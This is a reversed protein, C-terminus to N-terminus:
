LYYSLRQHRCVSPLLFEKVNKKLMSTQGSQWGQSSNALGGRVWLPELWIPFPNIWVPWPVFTAKRKFQWVAFYKTANLTCRAVSVTFDTDHQVVMEITIVIMNNRSCTSNTYWIINCIIDYFWYVSSFSFLISPFNWVCVFMCVPRCQSCIGECHSQMCFGLLMKLIVGSCLYQLCCLM